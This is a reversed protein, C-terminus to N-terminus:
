EQVLYGEIEFRVSRALGRVYEWGVNVRWKAAGELPDANVGVRGLLRLSTLTAVQMQLEVSSPVPRPVISHFIAWMRELLFPQPGLLRRTIKRNANATARTGGGRPGRRGGRGSTPLVSKMFFTYDKASPNYSALYSAILIYRSYTPLDHIISNSNSNPNPNPNATTTTITTSEVEGDKTTTTTTTTTSTATSGGIVYDVINEERRFMEKQKVFLKSFDRTGYEGERIPRVFEDWLSDSVQKFRVLTRATSKAQSEWVTALFRPYVFLSEELDEEPTPPPHGPDSPAHLLLPNLLLITIIEDKTYPPFHIHPLSPLSLHRPSPASLIFIVTLRKHTEGLRALGALLLPTLERQRDIRDLVLIHKGVREDAEARNRRDCEFVKGLVVALTNSNEARMNWIPDGSTEQEEGGGLVRERVTSAIRETLHRSTICENCAVWSYTLSGGIGEESDDGDDDDDDEDEDEDEDEAEAEEDGEEAGSLKELISRTLLSKGTAELGYVIVAPPSPLSPDLLACLQQTQVKRCPYIKDIEDVVKGTDIKRRKVM